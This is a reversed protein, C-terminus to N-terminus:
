GLTLDHRSIDFKPKPTDVSRYRHWCKVNGPMVSGDLNTLLKNYLIKREKWKTFSFFHYNNISFQWYPEALIAKIGVCLLLVLSELNRTKTMVKLSLYESRRFKRGSQQHKWKRRSLLVWVSRKRENQFKRRLAIRIWLSRHHPCYAPPM